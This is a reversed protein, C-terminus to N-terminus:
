VESKCSRCVNSISTNIQTLKDPHKRFYFVTGGIIVLIIVCAIVIGAIAAKNTVTRAVYVGGKDTQFSVVGENVSAGPVKYWTRLNESDASRYMEIDDTVGRVIGLKVSFKERTRLAQPNILLFESAYEDGVGMKGGKDKVMADGKDSPMKELQINVLQGLTNKEFWVGEGEGFEIAGGMVGIKKGYVASDGIVIRGKQSRNSFNNNRSCMYHYTGTGTVKRPGLDFYTGADDLESMEGRFQATNLTALSTLDDRELGLFTAKKFHEPYNGGWQGHVTEPKERGEPYRQKELVLVNSRDTGASGQGDNNNPNTNSGTWQFHVYDGNRMLVTNPTFDYEVAPYVQVINGRKGRVNVNHINKGKLNGPRRRVAFTHSRDQFVRGLQNTNIALQLNFIKGAEGPFMSVVPNQKYIYGREAAAQSDLGFKEGVDLLSGPTKPKLPQNLSSNVKADWGNFEGTSINYRIRLVCQEHNLDPLTWNYTNAYGGIGNGLHNDRSWDTERCDPPPLDHSPFQKWTARTGNPSNQPYRFAKCEDETSPIIYNRWRSSSIYEEPVECAYRGKINESESQYLKCREPNNTLVAIDKWPTPHWYPYHDREEPCEYGRRTGGPNQRTYKASNGRLKQDATFLGKNRNRYKCNTYYEYNEHMGFRKDTNCDFNQCLIPNEPVTQTTVGDRVNEGCMYQMVMECHNNPDGCSHQNTWEISLASGEYYYLSGVNYGGRNNNQSDFMRNANNRARGSEDLRNNSGRPNHMYIDGSVFVVLLCAALLSPLM